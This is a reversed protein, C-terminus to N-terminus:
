PSGVCAWPLVLFWHLCALSPKRQAAISVLLGAWRRGRGGGGCTGRHPKDCSYHLHTMLGFYFLCNNMDQKSFSLYFNIEAEAGAPAWKSEAAQEGSSPTETPESPKPPEPKQNKSNQKSSKAERSSRRPSEGRTTCTTEPRWICRVRWLRWAFTSIETATIIYYCCCREKISKWQIKLWAKLCM